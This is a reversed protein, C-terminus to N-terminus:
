QVPRACTWWPLYSPCYYGRREYRRRAIEGIILNGGLRAGWRGGRRVVPRDFGRFVREFRTQRNQRRQAQVTDPFAALSALAVAVALIMNKILTAKRLM